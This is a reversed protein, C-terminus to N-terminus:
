RRRTARLRKSSLGGSPTAPMPVRSSSTHSVPATPLTCAISLMSRVRDLAWVAASVQHPLHALPVGAAAAAALLEAELLVRTKNTHRTLLVENTTTTLLAWREAGGPTSFTTSLEEEEANAERASGREAGWTTGAAADAAGLYVCCCSLNSEYPMMSHEDTRKHRV